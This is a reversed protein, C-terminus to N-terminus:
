KEETAPNDDAVPQHLKGIFQFSLSLIIAVVTALSMGKLTITGLTISATSVGLGLVIATLMLNLPNNYDINSEALVRIGSAAIVGFLLLSVGGMVPVPISQILAALKGLCSLIIAFVAAGGIVWTSFVKTIALVGINEGYTTNPTSGFFGSIITSIGNGLISRDLGPDKALDAGVINGTVILHGVHEAIVVLAAPLIILIADLNFEPTYFAVADTIVAAPLEGGSLVYDGVTIERTTLHERIRHDVGKYHGCLIMINEMCSLENAMKQTFQEGDPSTFIVEDYSREAQLSRMLNYVPEIMMVMGADGGFSYDDVQRWRGLGWERINHVHIEVLGKDCARKVISHGLPSELLEPVVTLIDIRM